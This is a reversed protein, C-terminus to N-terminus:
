PYPMRSQVTYRLNSDERGLWASRLTSFEKNKISKSSLNLVKEPELGSNLLGKDVNSKAIPKFWEYPEIILEKNLLTMKKAFANLIVKKQAYDAKIFNSKLNTVFKGMYFQNNFINILVNRTLNKGARTKLYYHNTAVNLIESNTKDQLKLDWLKRVLSFRKKDKVITHKLKDNLYGLPVRRPFWGKESKSKM